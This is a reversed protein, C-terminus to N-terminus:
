DSVRRWDLGCVRQVRLQRRIRRERERSVAMWQDYKARDIAGMDLLRAETDRLTVETRLLTRSTSASGRNALVFLVILSVFLGGEIAFAVMDSRTM